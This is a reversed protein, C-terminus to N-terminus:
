LGVICPRPLRQSLARPWLLRQSLARPWLLRADDRHARCADPKSPKFPGTLRSSVPSRLGGGPRASLAGGRYSKLTCCGLRRSLRTSRGPRPRRVSGPGRERERAGRARSESLLSPPASQPPSAAKAIALQTEARGMSGGAPGVAAKHEIGRSATVTEVAGGGAATWLTGRIPSEAIRPKVARRAGRGFRATRRSEAAKAGRPDARNASRGVKTAVGGRGGRM